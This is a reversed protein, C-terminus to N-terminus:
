WPSTIASGCFCTCIISFIMRESTAFPHSVFIRDRCFSSRASASNVFTITVSSTVLSGSTITILDIRCRCSSTFLLSLQVPYVSVFIWSLGILSYLQLGSNNCKAKGISNGRPISCRCIRVVPVSLVFVTRRKNHEASPLNAREFDNKNKSAFWFIRCSFLIFTEKLISALM